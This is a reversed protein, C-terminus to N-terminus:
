SSATAPMGRREEALRRAAGTDIPKPLCPVHRFESLEEAYEGLGTMFALRTALDGPRDTLIRYLDTGSECGLLVDCLILDYRPDRELHEVAAALCGAVSVEAFRGLLRALAKSVLGDDEVLLIRLSSVNGYCSVLGVGQFPV